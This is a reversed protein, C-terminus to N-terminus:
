PGRRVGLRVLEADDCKLDLGSALWWALLESHKYTIVRRISRNTYKMELGSDKWAKIVDLQGFACAGDIGNHDYKLELGSDLWWQLVEVHGYQTAYNLAVVTYRLPSGSAKWWDLSNLRGHASACDLAVHDYLLGFKSHRWWELAKIHGLESALCIFEIIHDESWGIYNDQWWQLVKINDTSIVSYIKPNNMLQPDIGNRKWWDLLSILGKRSATHAGLGAARGPRCTESIIRKYISPYIGIQSIACMQKRFAVATRLATHPDEEINIAVIRELIENPLTPIATRTM